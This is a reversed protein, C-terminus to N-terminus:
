PGTVVINYDRGTEKEMEIQLELWRIFVNMHEIAFWFDKIDNLFWQINNKKLYRQSEKSYPDASLVQKVRKTEELIKRCMQSPLYNDELYYRDMFYPYYKLICPRFILAYTDEMKLYSCRLDDPIGEDYKKNFRLQDGGGMTRFADYHAWLGKEKIKQQMKYLAILRDGPNPYKLVLEEIRMNYLLETKEWESDHKRLNKLFRACSMRRLLSVVPTEDEMYGILNGNNKYGELVFIFEYQNTEIHFCRDKCILKEEETVLESLTKWLGLTREEFSQGSKTISLAYSAVMRDETTIKELKDMRFPHAAKSIAELLIQIRQHSQIYKRRAVDYHFYIRDLQPDFLVLELSSVAREIERFLSEIDDYSVRICIYEIGHKSKLIGFTIKEGGEAYEKILDITQRCDFGKLNREGDKWYWDDHSTIAQKIRVIGPADGRVCSTKFVYLHYLKPTM